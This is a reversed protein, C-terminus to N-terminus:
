FIKMQRKVARAITRSKNSELASLLERCRQQSIRDFYDGATAEVAETLVVKARGQLAPEDFSLLLLAYYHRIPLSHPATSLAREFYDMGTDRDAKYLWDATKPGARRVIELHWGGLVSLVWANHPAQELAQDLHVKGDRALGQFHARLRGVRRGKLGLVVAFQLHGELHNGDLDLAARADKEAQKLVKSSARGPESSMVDAILARAAFAFGDADGAQEALKAAEIFQGDRYLRASRDLDDPEGRIPTLSSLVLALAAMHLLMLHRWNAWRKTM